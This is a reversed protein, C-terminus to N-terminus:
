INASEFIAPPPCLSRAVVQGCKYPFPSGDEGRVIFARGGDTSIVFVAPPVCCAEDKGLRHDLSDASVDHREFEALISILKTRSKIPQDPIGDSKTLLSGLRGGICISYLERYERGGDPPILSKLITSKQLEWERVLQLDPKLRYLRVSSMFGFAVRISPEIRSQPVDMIERPKIPMSSQSDYCGNRSTQLKCNIGLVHEAPDGGPFQHVAVKEATLMLEEPELEFGNISRRHWFKCELRVNAELYNKFINFRKVNGFSYVDTGLQLHENISDLVNDHSEFFREHSSM